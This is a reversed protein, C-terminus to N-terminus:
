SPTVSSDRAAAELQRGARRAEARLTAFDPLRTDWEILTPRPGVEALVQAHLAWTAESVARDHSDILLPEGHDDRDEAHGALHIEGIADLPLRRLYDQADLRHNTCSVQVNGLDLLLGCGTRRVIEALFDAEHWASQLYGLYTAPNELLIRRRLRQQVEDVHQCVTQLTALTYPLPLLDNFYRGNHSSWALHESFEAPQWRHLLAAIRELHERDLPGSGGLSLGVGHISLAAHETVWELMNLGPGGASLYNEAHVEFFGIGAHDTRVDAYHAAKLSAGASLPLGVGGRPVAAARTSREASSMPRPTPAALSM